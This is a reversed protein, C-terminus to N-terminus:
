FSDDSVGSGADCSIVGKGRNKSWSLPIIIQPHNKKQEGDGKANQMRQSLCTM